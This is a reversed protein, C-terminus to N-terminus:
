NNLVECLLKTDDSIIGDVQWSALQLMSKKDNVTWVFIERNASHVDEILKRDVLSREAIVFDVPLKPWRALQSPKECIIGVPVSASRAKLEMVVDALFSSVVYDKEIRHERLAALVKTEIGAVKLEIDLFARHHYKQLLEEFDLLDKLQERESESIKLKGIKPDHCVVPHGDASCRLDFEFGECGHQLALDFAPISSEAVGPIVRNGRHGLLLPRNRM